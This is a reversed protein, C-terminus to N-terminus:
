AARVARLADAPTTAAGAPVAPATRPATDASGQDRQERQHQQPQRTTGGRHRDPTGVQRFHRRCLDKGELRDTKRTRALLTRASFGGRFSLCVLAHTNSTRT